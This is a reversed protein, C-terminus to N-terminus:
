GGAKCVSFENCYIESEVEGPREVSSPGPATQGRPVLLSTLLAVFRYPSANIVAEIKGPM